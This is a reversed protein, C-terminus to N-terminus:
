KSAGAVRIETAELKGDHTMAHVVAREGPKIDTLEIVKDGRMVHTQQGVPLTVMKGEPTQLMIGSASVQHVTGKAHTGGEHALAPGPLWAALLLLPLLFRRM